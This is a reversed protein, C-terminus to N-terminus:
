EYLIGEKDIADILEKKTLDQYFVVDVMYPIALLDFENLLQIKEQNTLNGLIAIDIDSNKKYNGKARSGFLKFQYQPYKQVIQKIVEYSIKSLGYKM